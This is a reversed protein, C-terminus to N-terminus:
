MKKLFQSGLIFEGVSTVELCDTGVVKCFLNSDGGGGCPALGMATAVLYFTQMLIGTNKLVLAYAMSQYKWAVRQFRAGSVFLIQPYVNKGTSKNADILLREASEDLPSIVCLRHESPHYHYIGPDLGECNNM